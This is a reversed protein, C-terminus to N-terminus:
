APGGRESQLRRALQGAPDWGRPPLQGRSSWKMGGRKWVERWQVPSIGEDDDTVGSQFGCSPCIEYSGGGDVGRAPELLGPYGCVLCPHSPSPPMSPAPQEETM